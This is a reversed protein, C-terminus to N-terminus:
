SAAVTPPRFGLVRERRARVRRGSVEILGLVAMENVDRTRTKMAKGAYLTALEPSLTHLDRKLVWGSSAHRFLDVALRKWREKRTPSAESHALQEDVYDRWVLDLLYSETVTTIQERLGDVFGEVAYTLFPMLDGGSRSAEALIRYYRDRTLNYHNSLLHAAPSPLGHGLLIAFEVLRATRGNGDGFPHIWAIYVHAIVSLVVAAGVPGLAKELDSFDSGNLWQCLREVLHEVDGHPAGRYVNGVIVEHTRYQGPVVDPDHVAKHLVAENWEQILEPTIPQRGKSMLFQEIDNCAQVINLLEQRQYERSPPVSLTGQVAALADDETLTNGEIATTALAGKALYLQYLEQAVDSRLPVRTLHDCKSQAEGILQWAQRPPELRLQFSIWPHTELYREVDTM